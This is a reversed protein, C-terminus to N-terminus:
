VEYKLYKLPKVELFLNGVWPRLLVKLFGGLGLVCWKKLGLMSPPRTDLRDDYVNGM